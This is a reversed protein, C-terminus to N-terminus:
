GREGCYSDDTILEVEDILRIQECTLGEGISATTDMDAEVQLSSRAGAVPAQEMVQQQFKSFQIPAAVAAAIVGAILACSVLVIKM